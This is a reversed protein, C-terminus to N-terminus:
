PKRLRRELGLDAGEVRRQRELGLGAPRHRLHPRAQRSRHRDAPLLGSMTALQRQAAAVDGFLGYLSVFAGIAPFLALLIFFAAGAAVAPIQDANFAKFTRALIQRWGVPDIQLPTAPAVGSLGPGGKPGTRWALYRDAFPAAVGLCFGFALATLRDSLPSLRPTPRPVPDPARRGGDTKRVGGLMLWGENPRLAVRGLM